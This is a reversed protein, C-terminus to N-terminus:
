NQFGKIINNPSIDRHLIQGETHLSQHAKIADRESELLEKITMFESIVRGAPSVVLCMYIRKEWLDGCSTYLSLRTGEGLQKDNLETKRFRHITGFQLGKRIDAITTIRRHAVVRAVGKVGRGEALRLQEMELKRKDSAWSFKAVYNNQIKYCTTGRRAIAQQRVMMKGLRLSTEKGNVDYLTIYRHGDKREIFTDLDMLNDSMTTYGVLARALKEPETHINFLGSSYAGSRDFVWLEM